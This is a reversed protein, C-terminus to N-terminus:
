LKGDNEGKYKSQVKEIYGTHARGILLMDNKYLTCV